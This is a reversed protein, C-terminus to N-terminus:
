EYKANVGKMYTSLRNACHCRYTRLIAYKGKKASDLMKLKEGELPHENKNQLFDLPSKITAIEKNSVHTYVQM